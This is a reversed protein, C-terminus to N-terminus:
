ISIVMGAVLPPPDNPIFFAELVIKIIEKQSTYAAHGGFPVNLVSSNKVLGKLEFIDNLGILPVNDGRIILLFSM